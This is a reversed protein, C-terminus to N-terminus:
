SISKEAVEKTAPRNKRNISYVLAVFGIVFVGSLIRSLITLTTYHYSIEITSEGSPIIIETTGYNSLFSQERKGNVTVDQGLYKYLPTILNKSAKETNNVKITFISDTYSYEVNTPKENLFYMNNQTIEPHLISEKNAYDTHYYASARDFVIDETLLTQADKGSYYLNITASAHLTILILSYSIIRKWMISNNISGSSFAISFSYALFLTSFINLRWVFQLNTFPTEDLLKWPFLSSSIILITIGYFFIFSDAKNLKDFKFLTVFICLFIVLGITYGALNNNLISSLMEFPNMGSLSTANPVKLEQAKSQQLFPVLFGLSLLLTCITAYFLSLIRKIKENWYYLTLVIAIGMVAIIMAVSLLHSYLIFTMGITILYWHRYNGFFVEYCGALLLPLFTLAVAEGLSARQFIDTSRYAAFSYTLAFVLSIFQNKKIINIAYYSILMTTLTIFFYYLRYALILSNSIKYFLYAPYITLWPYFINMITGNNHFNNFNVPSEWVNSLGIIRSLHFVTDQDANHVIGKTMFLPISYIISMLLIILLNFIHNKKKTM